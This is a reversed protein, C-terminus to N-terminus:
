GLETLLNKGNPLIFFSIDPEADSFSTEPMSMRYVMMDEEYYEAGWLIGKELSVWYIRTYGSAKDAIATKVCPEGNYYEYAASLIDEKDATLIDEYTPIQTIDDVTIDSEAYIAYTDSGEDWVYTYGDIYIFNETPSGNQDFYRLRAVRDLVWIGRVVASSGGNWFHEVLIESSYSDPRELSKIVKKVNEPTIEVLTKGDSSIDPGSINGGTTHNGSPVPPLYIQPSNNGEATNILFVIFIASTLLVAAMVAFVTMKGKNM